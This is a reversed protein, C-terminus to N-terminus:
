VIAPSRDDRWAARARALEDELVIGLRAIGEEIREESLHAFSLRLGGPEALGVAFYKAPLYAVGAAFAKEMLASADLPEPLSVWVNMGGQPHTWRTGAPLWSKCAQDVAALRARGAEVIRAVHADLRGSEMFRLLVAQSLQDSHLDTLQKRAALAATLERRATVWGVRLGPFAIKSFSNLRAVIGTEDMSKLSEVAEGEYRLAGYVDNELVAVGADRAVQLLRRRAERPMTAGTPNQFNPTVAILRIRERKLLAELEDVDMGGATVKVGYTRVGAQSFLIKLGPYIPDEVAVADGPVTLTRQLLDLAQQCGNTVMVEDGERAEGREVAQELLRRRLPAYGHPSGLELIRGADERGIVEACSARFEKLPFVDGAPRASTFNVCDDAMPPLAAEAAPEQVLRPAWFGDGAGPGVGAVYSGRGVHGRILGEKELLEYAAAVTTRNLDLQTSLERTAPLKTGRALRGSLIEGRIHEYLQKYIPEGSAADFQPLSLM